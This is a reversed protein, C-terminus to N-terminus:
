PNSRFINAIRNAEADAEDPEVDASASQGPVAYREEAWAGLDILKCRRSCFPRNPNDLRYEASNGCIPCKVHLVKMM